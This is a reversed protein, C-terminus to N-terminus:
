ADVVVRYFVSKKTIPSKRIVKIVDGPKLDLTKAVPDNSLMKPLQKVSINYQKLLNKVEEENLKEYKPVFSHKLIDIEM